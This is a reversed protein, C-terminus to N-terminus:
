EPRGPSDQRRCLAPCLMLLSASLVLVTSVVVCTIGATMSNEAKIETATDSAVLLFYMGAIGFVAGAIYLLIGPLQSPNSKM